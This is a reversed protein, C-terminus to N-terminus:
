THWGLALWTISLLCVCVHVYEYMHVYVYMLKWVHHCVYMFVFVCPAKMDEHCTSFILLMCVFVHMCVYVHVCVHAKMGQRCTGPLWCCVYVHVVHMCAYVYVWVCSSIYWVMVANALYEVAPTCVCALVCCACVYMCVCTCVYSIECRSQMRWTSWLLCIERAAHTSCGDLSLSLCFWMCVSESDSLSLSLSLTLSWWPLVWIRFRITTAYSNTYQFSHVVQM